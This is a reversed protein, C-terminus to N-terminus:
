SVQLSVMSKKKNNYYPNWGISMVMKLTPGNDVKAWGFYIGTSIEEPLKEVVHEPFNAPLSYCQLTLILTLHQFPLHHSFFNVIGMFLLFLKMHRLIEIKQVYTCHKHANMHAHRHAQMPTPTHTHKCRHTHTYIQVHTCRCIHTHINYSRASTQTLIHIHSCSCIHACMQIQSQWHTHWYTLYAHFISHALSHFLTCTHTAQESAHM